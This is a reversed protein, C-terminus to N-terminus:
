PPWPGIYHMVRGDELTVPAPPQRMEWATLEKMLPEMVARYHDRILEIDRMIEAKTRTTM